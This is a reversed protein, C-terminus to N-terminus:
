QVKEFVSTSTITPTAKLTVTINTGNLVYIRPHPGIGSPQLDVDITTTVSTGEATATSGLEISGSYAVYSKFLQIAEADTADTGAQKRDPTSYNVSARLNKGERVFTLYGISLPSITDKGTIADYNVISQLKWLGV